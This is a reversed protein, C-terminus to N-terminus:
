VTVASTLTDTVMGTASIVLTVAGTGTPLNLLWHGNADTLATALIPATAPNSTYAAANYATIRAGSIPANSTNEVTMNSPNRNTGGALDTVATTGAPATSGYGAPATSPLLDAYAPGEHWKAGDWYGKAVGVPLDTTAPAGGLQQYFDATYVGVSIAPTAATYRHSSPQETLAIAYSTWHGVAYTEFTSTNWWQELSDRLVAYITAGSLVDTHKLLTDAM